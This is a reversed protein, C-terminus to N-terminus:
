RRRRRIDSRTRARRSTLECSTSLGRKGEVHSLAFPRSPEFRALDADVFWDAAPGCKRGCEQALDVYRGLLRLHPGRRLQGSKRGSTTPVQRMQTEPAM